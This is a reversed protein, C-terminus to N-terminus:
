PKDYVVVRGNPEVSISGVDDMDVGEEKLKEALGPNADITKQLGAPDTNRNPTSTTTDDQSNIEGQSKKVITYSGSTDSTGSAAGSGPAKDAPAAAETSEEAQAQALSAGPVLGLFLVGALMITKM